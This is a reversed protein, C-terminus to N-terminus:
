LAFALGITSWSTTALTALRGLMTGLLGSSSRLALYPDEIGDITEACAWGSEKGKHRVKCCRPTSRM